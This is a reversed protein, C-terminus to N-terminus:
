TPPRVGTAAHLHKRLSTGTASGLHGAIEDFPLDTSDLLHRHADQDVGGGPSHPCRARCIAWARPAYTMPVTPM